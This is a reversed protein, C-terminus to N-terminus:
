EMSKPSCPIGNVEVNREDDIVVEDGVNLKGYDQENFIFGVEVENVSDLQITVDDGFTFRKRASSQEPDLFNAHISDETSAGGSSVSVRFDIGFVKATGVGDNSKVFDGATPPIAPTFSGSCGVLVLLVLPVIKQM